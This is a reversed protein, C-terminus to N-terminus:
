GMMECMNSITNVKQETDTISRIMLSNRVHTCYLADTQKNILKSSNSFHEKQESFFTVNCSYSFDSVAHDHDQSFRKLVFISLYKSYKYVQM